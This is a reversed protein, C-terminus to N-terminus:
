STFAEELGTQLLQSFRSQPDAMLRSRTDHERVQGRELIMIEDARQVTALRHAIIIGTRNQLLKDLAMEVRQETAPDLRSSAEDLIVLGPDTLFVRAFALLQAEGASLNSDSGTDLQTNLGDPLTALWDSLGVEDIVARVREDAISDDFLTLNDRVSSHFLQVEQTVMGIRGHLDPPRATRLDVMTEETGGLRIAGDTPHYFRFLLKSLTSKGSGTRGLLGLVTGPTLTFSLQDLVTEDDDEYHFSVNDFEVALAQEPLHIGEGDEITSQIAFLAAIRNISAMAKQLDEVHRLSEWLPGEMVGVYHFILYVSGITLAGGGVTGDDYFYGGVLTAAAYAPGFVWVPFSIVFVNLRMAYWQSAVRERMLIYFRQMVYPVGGNARIDETGNLREELFGFLAADAARTREWRPIMRRRLWELAFMSIVAILTIALGIQWGEFWLLTLVGTFLLLNGVLRIILQSFLKALQNVDGDVREILEGPTHTKHFSLDLKLCHLALDARLNNTATWGVQEGIYTAILVVIQQVITLGTFIAAAGMLQNLSRGQEVSDLFYRILQPNALLLGLSLLVLLALLAVRWKQPGLYTQFLRRYDAFSVTM